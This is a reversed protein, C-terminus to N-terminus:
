ATALSLQHNSVIRGDPDWKRKVDALRGCTDPPLIEDIDCSRDAFNFYSGSGTWSKMVDSMQDLRATIPEAMEPAMLAGVGFFTYAADLKDLAGAGDTPRGLAGGLNRLEALLLPSGSEPGGVDFFADLAEDPLEDLVGGDAEYPVPEEPDMAIRCLGACPIQGFTDMVPEGIERLPAILKEGEEQSGICTAGMYLLPTDRLPEPVEPVPPLRLFRFMASVEEPAGATWDRWARLGDIGVEGPFLLAGAYADSIPLLDVHIATVIAFGGGGGRLAWFLDPESEAHVTRHEGDASVVDIASIRNCAFGHKRGLWGLGGGLSFGVVSVNTASGPLFTKGHPQLAESLELAHVGPEVRAADGDVEVARMREMKILVTDDLSGLADAGHGVGQATVKLDQAAAFDVVQAVDNANEVIAVAAPQLDVALNWARRAEDWDPDSPTAVRGDISLESFDAM